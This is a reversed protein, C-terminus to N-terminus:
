KKVVGHVCCLTMVVATDAAMAKSFFFSLLTQTPLNPWPYPLLMDLRSM